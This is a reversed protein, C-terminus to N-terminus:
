QWLRIAHGQDSRLVAVRAALQRALWMGAGSVGGADPAVYGALPDDFGAGRDLLECVFRGDVM